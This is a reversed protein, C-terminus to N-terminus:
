IRDVEGAGIPFGDVVYLPQNGGTISSIGRVLVNVNGGPAGSTQSIQVGAVKGQLMQDFSAVSPQIIEEGSVRAISGTLDRKLQTGYGVIVVEDLSQIDEVLTVNIVNKANVGVEQTLFGIYSFVLTANPDVQQISYNGDNDSIVGISTGKILVNVGPLTIGEVSKVQGSVNVPQQQLQEVSSGAAFVVTSYVFYLLTAIVKIFRDNRKSYNSIREMRIFKHKM